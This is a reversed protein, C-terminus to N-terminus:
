GDLKAATDAVEGAVDAVKKDEAPAAPKETAGVKEMGDVIKKTADVTPEPGGKFLELVKGSKDIIFM